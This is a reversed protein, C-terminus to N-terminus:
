VFNYSVFDFQEGDTFGVIALDLGANVRGHHRLMVREGVDIAYEVGDAQNAIEDARNHLVPVTGAHISGGARDHAIDHTIVEYLM